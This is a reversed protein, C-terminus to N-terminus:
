ISQQEVLSRLVREQERQRQAKLEDSVPDMISKLSEYGPFFIGCIGFWWLSRPIAGSFFSGFVRKVKGVTSKTEMAKDLMSRATQMVTVPAAIGAVRKNTIMRTRLVDMPTTFYGALFGSVGGFMISKFTPIDIEIDELAATAVVHPHNRKVRDLLDRKVSRHHLAKFNEYSVLLIVMFPSDRAAIAWFGKFLGRPGEELLTQRIVFGTTPKQSLNAYYDTQLKATVVERPVKVVSSALDGIVASLATAPIVGLQGISAAQGKKPLLHSKCYEYTSFRAGGQGAAGVVSAFFGKGLSRATERTFVARLSSSTTNAQIRTKITDLPHMCSYSVSLSVAGAIFHNKFLQVQSVVTDSM